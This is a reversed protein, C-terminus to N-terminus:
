SFCETCIVVFSNLSVVVHCLQVVEFSLFARIRSVKVFYPVLPAVHLMQLAHPTSVGAVHQHVANFILLGMM